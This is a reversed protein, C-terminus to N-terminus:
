RQLLAHYTQATGIENPGDGLGNGTKTAILLKDRRGAIAKGLIEESLGSSYSDATDVM